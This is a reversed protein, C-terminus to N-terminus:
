KGNVVIKVISKYEGSALSLIDKPKITVKIYGNFDLFVGSDGLNNTIDFSASYTGTTVIKATCNTLSNEETNDLHVVASTFSSSDDTKIFNGANISVSYTKSVAIDEMNWVIYTSYSANEDTGTVTGETEDEVNINKQTNIRFEEKSKLVASADLNVKFNGQLATYDSSSAVLGYFACSIIFLLLVLLYKKM